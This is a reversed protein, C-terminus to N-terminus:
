VGIAVVVDLHLVNEDGGLTGKHGKEILEELEGPGLWVDIEKTVLSLSIKGLNGIFPVMGSTSNKQSRVSLLIYRPKIWTTM